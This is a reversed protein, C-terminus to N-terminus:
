NNFNVISEYLIYRYHNNMKIDIINIKNAIHSNNENDNEDNNIKKIRIPLINMNDCIDINKNFYNNDISFRYLISEELYKMCENNEASLQKNIKKLSDIIFYERLLPNKLTYQSKILKNISSRIYREHYKIKDDVVNKFQSKIYKIIETHNM